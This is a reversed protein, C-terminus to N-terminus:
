CSPKLVSQSVSKEVNEGYLHIPHLNSRAAFSSFFFLRPCDNSCMQYVKLRRFARKNRYFFIKLHKVMYTCSPKILM